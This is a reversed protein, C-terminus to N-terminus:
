GRRGSVLCRATAEPKPQLSKNHKNVGILWYAVGAALWCGILFLALPVPIVSSIPASLPMLFQFAVFLPIWFLVAPILSSLLVQWLRIWNHRRLLLLVPIWVLMALYSILVSYGFAPLDIGGFSLLGVVLPTAAVLPAITFAVIERFMM